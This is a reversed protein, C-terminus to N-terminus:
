KLDLFINKPYHLSREHIVENQSVEFIKSFKPTSKDQYEVFTTTIGLVKAGADIVLVPVQKEETGTNKM